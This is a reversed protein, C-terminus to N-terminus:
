SALRVPLTALSRMVWNTGWEPEQSGLTIGPYRDLLAGLAIRGEMRALYHGLCYHIGHGFVLSQSNDRTLDLRDPDPFHKPDRNAAGMLMSIMKGKKIKKGGFELDELAFRAVLQVPSDYRLLEDVGDELLEPSSRLRDLQEPHRLLALLGMSILGRTTANGAVLLLSCLALMEQTTLRDGEEEAHILRTILDDQPVRRREEIIGALYDHIHHDGEVSRRIDELAFTGTSGAMDDSWQRFQDRDAIPIGLLEAIVLMPLPYALANVIEIHDGGASDLLEHTIQEIRPALKRIATPEFAKNVLARLRTHRPPDSMILNPNDLEEQSRGAQIQRKEIWKWWSATRLDNGLRPDRLLLRIDDFRTLAWGAGLWSGHVPDRDRLRRYAPYPDAHMAPTFPNFVVGSQLKEISGFVGTFASFAASQLAKKM